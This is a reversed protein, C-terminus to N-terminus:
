GDVRGGRGIRKQVYFPARGDAMALLAALAIVPLLFPASLAVLLVDLGRKGYRAYLGGKELAPGRVVSAADIDALLAPTKFHMVM